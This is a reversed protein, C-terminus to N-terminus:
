PNGLVLTNHYLNFCVVEVVILSVLLVCCLERLDCFLTKPTYFFMAGLLFGMYIHAVDKLLNEHHGFARLAGLIVAIVILILSKM